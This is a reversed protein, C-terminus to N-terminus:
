SSLSRVMREGTRRLLLWIWFAIVAAGTLLTLVLNLIKRSRKVPKEPTTNEQTPTSQSKKTGTKGPWKARFQRIPGSLVALRESISKTSAAPTAAQAPQPYPQSLDLGCEECYQADPQISTGCRPCNPM